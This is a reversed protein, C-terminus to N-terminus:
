ALSKEPTLCEYGVVRSKIGPVRAWGPIDAVGFRYSLDPAKWM